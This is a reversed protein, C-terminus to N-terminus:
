HNDLLMYTYNAEVYIDMQGNATICNIDGHFILSNLQEGALTATIPLGTCLVM